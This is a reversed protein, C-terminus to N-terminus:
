REEGAEMHAVLKNVWLDFQDFAKPRVFHYIEIRSTLAVMRAFARLRLARPLEHLRM